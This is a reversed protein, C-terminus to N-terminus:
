KWTFDFKGIPKKGIRNFDFELRFIMKRPQCGGSLGDDQFLCQMYKEWIKLVSLNVFFINNHIKNTLYMDDICKYLNSLIYLYWFVNQFVIIATNLFGLMHKPFLLIYFIKLKWSMKWSIKTILSKKLSKYM